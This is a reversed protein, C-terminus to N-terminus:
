TKRINRQKVEQGRVRASRRRLRKCATKVTRRGGPEESTEHAGRCRGRLNQSAHVRTHASRRTSGRFLREQARAETWQGGWVCRLSVVGFRDRSNRSQAGWFTRLLTPSAARLEFSRRAFPGSSSRVACPDACALLAAPSSSRWARLTARMRAVENWGWLPLEM